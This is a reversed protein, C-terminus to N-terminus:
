RDDKKRSLADILPNILEKRFTWWRERLEGRVALRLMSYFALMGFAILAIYIGRIAAQRLRNPSLPSDQQLLPQPTSTPGGPTATPRPTRTPPQWILPTPSPGPTATGPISTATPTPPLTPLPTATANSVLIHIEYDTSEGDNREIVLRLIYYGDELSTTDWAGLTGDRVQQEVPPQIETWPVDSPTPDPAYELTYSRFDPDVATGIITVWGSLSDGPQPSSILIRSEGSEPTPTEDDDQQVPGALATQVSALLAAILGLIVPLANKIKISAMVM